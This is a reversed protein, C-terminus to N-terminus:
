GNGRCADAGLRREGWIAARVQCYAERPKCEERPWLRKPALATGPEGLCAPWCRISLRGETAMEAFNPDLVVECGSAKLLKLLSLQKPLHAADFVVRRYPFRGAAHLAELKTQGTHGVRLFGALPPSTPYLHHLTAAM